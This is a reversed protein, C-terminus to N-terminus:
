KPRTGEEFLCFQEYQLNVDSDSITIIGINPAEESPKFTDWNWEPRPAPAQYLISRMTSFPVGRVTGSIPRHVHGIFLYKVCEYNSVLDLFVDGDILGDTDQMPLGVAMPPHHMFIYVPVEATNELLNQLWDLRKGCLEGADSGSKQTDLCVILGSSTSVSFQIFEDMCSDPLSLIKRFLKRDDHNGAMPLLPVDLKELLQSLAEYNVQTGHNVMDGSIVCFSADSHNSNIHDLASDLRVRPDHGLVDGEHSFHPDSMWIAKLM